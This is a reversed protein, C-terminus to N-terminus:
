VNVPPVVNLEVAVKLEEVMMAFTVLEIRAVSLVPLITAVVVAAPPVAVVVM